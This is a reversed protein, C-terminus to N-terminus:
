KKPIESVTAEDCTIEVVEAGDESITVVVEGRFKITGDKLTEASEASITTQGFGPKPLKINMGSGTRLIRGFTSEVKKQAEGGSTPSPAAMAPEMSTTAIAFLSILLSIETRM